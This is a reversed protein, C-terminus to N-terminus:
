WTKCWSKKRTVALFITIIGIPVLFDSFEPVFPTIFCYVGKKTVVFVDNNIGDKNFDYGKTFWYQYACLKTSVATFDLYPDDTVIDAYISGIYASNAETGLLHWWVKCYGIGTGMINLGVDTFGEGTVDGIQHIQPQLTSKNVKTGVDYVFKNSWLIKGTKGNYSTYSFTVNSGSGMTPTFCMVVDVIGDKNLDSFETPLYNISFLWKAWGPSNYVDITWITKGTKGSILTVKKLTANVDGWVFIDNINDNNMDCTSFAVSIMHSFNKTWEVFNLKPNLMYVVNDELNVIPLDPINDGTYDQLIAEVYVDFYRITTTFTALDFEKRFIRNGNIGNHGTVNSKKNAIDRVIYAVDTRGDGTFDSFLMQPTYGQMLVGGHRPVSVNWLISGTKGNFACTYPAKYDYVVVVTDNVDDNNLDGTTGYLIPECLMPLGTYNVTFNKTYLVSGTVGNVFYLRLYFLKKSVDYFRTDIIFDHKGDENYDTLTTIPM